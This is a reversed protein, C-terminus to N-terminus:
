LNLLHMGQASESHEHERGRHGQEGPEEREQEKSFARAEAELSKVFGLNQAQPVQEKDIAGKSASNQIRSPM